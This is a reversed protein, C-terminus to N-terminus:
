SGSQGTQDMDGGFPLDLIYSTKAVELYPDGKCTKTVLQVQNM